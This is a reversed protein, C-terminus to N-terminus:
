NEDSREFFSMDRSLDKKLEAFFEAGNTGSALLKEIVAM